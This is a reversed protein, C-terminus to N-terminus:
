ANPSENKDKSNDVPQDAAAANDPAKNQSSWQQNDKELLYIAQYLTLNLKPFKEMRGQARELLDDVEEQNQQRNAKWKGGRAAAVASLSTIGARREQLSVDSSYKEDATLRGPGQYCFQFWYPDFPLLGLKMATALAYSDYRRCAPELILDQDAAISRNIKDVVVRMSAGGIKTPDLSFDVSWDMGAFNSRVITAQFAQANTTPRDNTPVTLSSGSKAKLYRITGGDMMENQLGTATGVAEADTSTTRLLAATADDISGSENTEILTMAANVKEAILGFRQIEDVDQWNFLSSGLASFGRVQGEYDPSFILAMDNVSVDTFTSYDWPMSGMVRYAIPRGFDDLIVGDIISRGNWAANGIVRYGRGPITAVYSDIPIPNGWADVVGAATIRTYGDYVVVSQLTRSGIRHAGIIQMRPEGLANKTLLIGVDGDRKVAIILNRRFTRKNYPAGAIDCVQDHNGMWQEANEAWAEDPGSGDHAHYFELQFSSSAYEGQERLGGRVMPNNSYVWRGLSMLTRRGFNSVNRHVDYDLMPVSKRDQTQTAARVLNNSGWGQFGSAWRGELFTQPIAAAPM